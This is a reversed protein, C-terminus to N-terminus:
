AGGAAKRRQERDEIATRWLYSVGIFFVALSVFMSPFFLLIFLQGSM